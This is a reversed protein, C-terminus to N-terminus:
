ATVLKRGYSRHRRAPGSTRGPRSRRRTFGAVIRAALNAGLRRSKLAIGPAGDRDGKIRVARERMRSRYPDTLAKEAPLRVGLWNLEWILGQCVIM